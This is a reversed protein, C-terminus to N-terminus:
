WARPLLDAYSGLLARGKSLCLQHWDRRPHLAHTAAAVIVLALRQVPMATMRASSRGHPYPHQHLVYVEQPYLEWHPMLTSRQVLVLVLALALELALALRRALEVV